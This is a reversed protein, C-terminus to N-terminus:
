KGRMSLAAKLLVGYKLEARIGESNAPMVYGRPRSAGKTSVIVEFNHGAKIKLIRAMDAVYKVVMPLHRIRRDIEKTIKPDYEGFHPTATLAQGNANVQYLEAM